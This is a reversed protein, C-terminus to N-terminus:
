IVFTVNQLFNTIKRYFIKFNNIALVPPKWGSHTRNPLWGRTLSPSSHAAIKGFRDIERRNTRATELVPTRQRFDCGGCEQGGAEFNIPLLWGTFMATTM